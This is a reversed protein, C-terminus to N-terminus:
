AGPIPPGSQLDLVDLISEGTFYITRIPASNNNPLFKSDNNLNFLPIIEPTIIVIYIHAADQQVTWQINFNSTLKFSAPTTSIDYYVYKTPLLPYSKNTNPYKYFSPSPHIYNPTSPQNLIYPLTGTIQNNNSYITGIMWYGDEFDQYNRVNSVLDQTPLIFDSPNGSEYNLRNYSMNPIISYLNSKNITIRFTSTYEKSNVSYTPATSVTNIIQIGIRFKFISFRENIRKFLIKSPHTYYFQGTSPSYVGNTLSVNTLPTTFDQSGNRNEPLIELTFDNKPTILSPTKYIANSNTSKTPAYVLLQEWDDHFMNNKENHSFVMFYGGVGKVNPTFYTKDSNIYGQKIKTTVYSANGIFKSTFNIEPEFHRFKSDNGSETGIKGYISFGPTPLYKMPYSTDDTILQISPRTPFGPTIETKKLQLTYGNSFTTNGGNIVGINNSYPLYYLADTPTTLQGGISIRNYHDLIFGPYTSSSDKILFHLFSTNNSNNYTNIIGYSKLLIDFNSPFGISEKSNLFYIGNSQQSGLSRDVINEFVQFSDKNFWPRSNSIYNNGIYLKISNKLIGFRDVTDNILSTGLGGISVKHEVRLGYNNNLITSNSTYASSGIVANGLVTLKSSTPNIEGISVKAKTNIDNHNSSSINPYDAGSIPQILIDNYTAILTSPITKAFISGKGNIIGLTLHNGERINTGSASQFDSISLVKNNATADLPKILVATKDNSQIKDLNISTGPAPINDKKDNFTLGGDPNISFAYKKSTGNYYYFETLSIKNGTPKLLKFDIGFINYTDNLPTIPTTSANSPLKTFGVSLVNHKNSATLNNRSDLVGIKFENFDNSSDSDIFFSKENGKFLYKYFDFYFISGDSSKNNVISFVDYVGTAGSVVSGLLFGVSGTPQYSTNQSLYILPITKNKNLNFLYPIPSTNTTRTITPNSSNDISLKYAYREWGFVNLNKSSLSTTLDNYTASDSSSTVFSTLSLTAYPSSLRVGESQAHSKNYTTDPIFVNSNSILLSYNLEHKDFIYHGPNSQDEIIDYFVNNTLDIFIDGPKFGDLIANDANNNALTLVSNAGYSIGWKPIHNVFVVNKGTYFADGKEGKEGKLGPQGPIGQLGIEGKTSLLGSLLNFNYNLKDILASINDSSNITKLNLSM